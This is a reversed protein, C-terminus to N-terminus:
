TIYICLLVEEYVWERGEFYVFDVAEYIVTEGLREGGVGRM